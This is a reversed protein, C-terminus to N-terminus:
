FFGFLSLNLTLDSRELPIEIYSPDGILYAFEKM